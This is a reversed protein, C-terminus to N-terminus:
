TSSGVTYTGVIATPYPERLRLFNYSEEKFTLVTTTHTIFITTTLTYFTRMTPIKSPQPPDLDPLMQLEIKLHPTDIDKSYLKLQESIDCGKSLTGNAAELLLQEITAAVPIGNKQQFRRYLEGHLLDLLEFYQQRFYAKPTEFRHGPEGDDVRRPRKTFRPLTPQLSKTMSITLLRMLDKDKWTALSSAPM